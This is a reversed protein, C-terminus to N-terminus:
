NKLNYKHYTTQVMHVGQFQLQLYNYAAMHTSPISRPGELFAAIVGFNQTMERAGLNIKNKLNLIQKEKKMKMTHKCTHSCVHVNTHPPWLDTDFDGSSQVDSMQLLAEWDVGSSATVALRGLCSARLTRQRYRGVSSNCTVTPGLRCKHSNQPDSSQAEPTCLLRKLGKAKEGAQSPPNKLTIFVRGQARLILTRSKQM